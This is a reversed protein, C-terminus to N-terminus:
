HDDDPIPGIIHDICETIFATTLDTVYPNEGHWTYGTPPVVYVAVASNFFGNVCAGYSVQTGKWGANAHWVAPKAAPFMTKPFNVWKTDGGLRDIALYLNYGMSPPPPQSENTHVYKCAAGGKAKSHMVIQGNHKWQGMHPPGAFAFDCEITGLFVTQASSSDSDNISITGANTNSYGFMTNKVYARAVEDPVRELDPVGNADVLGYRYPSHDQAHADYSLHGFHVIASLALFALISGPSRRAAFLLGNVVAAATSRRRLGSQPGNWVVGVAGTLGGKLARMCALAILLKRM